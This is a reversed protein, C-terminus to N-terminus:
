RKATIFAGLAQVVERPVDLHQQLMGDRFAKSGCEAAHASAWHQSQCAPSCYWPGAKRCWGCRRCRAWDLCVVCLAEVMACHLSHLFALFRVVGAQVGHEFHGGEVHFLVCSFRHETSDVFLHEFHTNKIHVPVGNCSFETNSSAARSLFDHSLSM